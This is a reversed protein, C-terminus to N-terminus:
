PLKGEQKLLLLQKLDAVVRDGTIPIMLWVTGNLPKATRAPALIAEDWLGASAELLPLLEQRLVVLAVFGDREPYLTCLSKGSKQYKVNWGPKASCRSYAIKPGIRYREQLFRNLELWRGRAPGDIYGTLAALDPARGADLLLDETKL